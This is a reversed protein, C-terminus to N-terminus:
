IGLGKGRNNQKRGGYDWGHIQGLDTSQRHGQDLDASQAQGAHQEKPPYRDIKGQIEEPLRYAPEEKAGLLKHWAEVKARHLMKRMWGALGPYLAAEMEKRQFKVVNLLAERDPHDGGTRYRLWLRDFEKLKMRKFRITQFDKASGFEAFFQEQRKWNSLEGALSDPFNTTEM